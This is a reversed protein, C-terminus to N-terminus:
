PILLTFIIEFFVLYASLASWYKAILSKLPGMRIESSESFSLIGLFNRSAMRKSSLLFPIADGSKADTVAGRITTTQAFVHEAQLLSVILMLWGYYRAKIKHM